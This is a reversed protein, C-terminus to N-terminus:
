YLLHLVLEEQGKYREIRLSMRERRSGVLAAVEKAPMNGPLIFKLDKNAVREIAHLTRDLIASSTYISRSNSEKVVVNGSCKYMLYELLDPRLPTNDFELLLTQSNPMANDKTWSRVMEKSTLNGDIVMDQLVLKKLNTCYQLAQELSQWSQIYGTLKLTELSEFKDLLNIISWDLGEHRTGIAFFISKFNFKIAAQTLAINDDGDCIDPLESLRSFETSTNDAIQMLTTFFSKSSVTGTLLEISPTFALPLLHTYILPLGPGEIEFHLHKIFRGKTINTCLHGYLQIARNLSDLEIKCGLMVEEAPSNWERCVLRCYALQAVCDIHGLICSLIEAPLSAIHAM